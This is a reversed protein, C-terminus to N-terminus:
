EDHNGGPRALRTQRSTKTIRQLDSIFSNLGHAYADLYDQAMRDALDKQGAAELLGVHPRFDRLTMRMVGGADTMIGWGFVKKDNDDKATIFRTLTSTPAVVGLNSIVERGKILDNLLDFRGPITDLMRQLPTPMHALLKITGVSASDGAVAIEKAKSMVAGFGALAALYIRQRRDFEAYAAGRDGVASRYAALARMVQRHLSLLDLDHLPVEFTMPYLRERPSRQSADVPIVIAPNFQRAQDVAELAAQAAQQTGSKRSLDKLTAMLDPDPKYTAAHIARYLVLLDNVTLQLLDSRQKFYKRLTLMAKLDVAETEASAEPTVQPMQRIVARESDRFRFELPHPPKKDPQVPPLTTLYVAWSLALNTMIEALAAGWAGDFFIHSQDFVVTQGTDFLTLPHDGTGREGQRLAPLPLGSQRSDCNLLIPASRLRDLAQRAMPNIKTRLDPWAVRKVRALSVLQALPIRAPHHMLTAIQARVRTIEAPKEAGPTCAPILYYRGQHILGVHAQQLPIPRRTEDHLGPELYALISMQQQYAPLDQAEATRVQKTWRYRLELPLKDMAEELFLDFKRRRYAPYTESSDTDPGRRYPRQKEWRRYLQAYRAAGSQNRTVESLLATYVRERWENELLDNYHCLTHIAAMVWASIRAARAAGRRM